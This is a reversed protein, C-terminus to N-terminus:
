VVSATKKVYTLLIVYIVRSIEQRLRAIVYCRFM